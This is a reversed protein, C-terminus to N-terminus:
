YLKRLQHGITKLDKGPNTLWGLPLMDLDPWSKGLFGKAGIMNAASFDRVCSYLANYMTFVPVKFLRDSSFFAFVLMLCVYQTSIYGGQFTLIPHLM